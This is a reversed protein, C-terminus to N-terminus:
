IPSNMRGPNYVHSLFLHEAVVIERAGVQQVTQRMGIPYRQHLGVFSLPIQHGLHEIDVAIGKVGARIENAYVKDFMQGAVHKPLFVFSSWFGNM